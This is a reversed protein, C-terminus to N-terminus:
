KSELDINLMYDNSRWKTVADILKTPQRTKTYGKCILRVFKRRLGINKFMITNFKVNGSHYAWCVTENLEDPTLDTNVYLILNKM